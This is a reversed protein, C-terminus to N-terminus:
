VVNLYLACYAPALDMIYWVYIAIHVNVACHLGISFSYVIETVTGFDFKLMWFPTGLEVILHSYLIGGVRYRDDIYEYTPGFFRM